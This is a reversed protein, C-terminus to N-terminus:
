SIKNRVREGWQEFVIMYQDSEVHMTPLALGYIRKDELTVIKQEIMIEINYRDGYEDSIINTLKFPYWSNVNKERVQSYLRCTNAQMVISIPDHRAISCMLDDRSDYIYILKQTCPSRNGHLLILSRRKLVEDLINKFCRSGNLVQKQQKFKQVLAEGNIGGEWYQRIPGFRAIIHKLNM